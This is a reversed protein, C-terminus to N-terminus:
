EPKKNWAKDLLEKVKLPQIDPFTGNLFKAPKPDFVGDEFWLGFAVGMGQMAPKPFFQYLPVQGPLETIQGMKLKEKTDYTTDFKTGKAEEALHLFENWTVRDGFVFTEPEWEPLDLSAAVFRGVDNTHTFLAHTNGSGPIAAADNPIDLWYVLPTRALYSKVGPFGWYDMFYGNYFVTYELSKTKRLEKQANIKHIVSPIMGIHEDKIPVGWDSSIFRKTTKSLDAAQILEIEKPESGDPSHMAIGSVVTDINNDELVKVVAGVDSYDVPVIAAGIEAELGFNPKRSLIKVEHRGTSLIAEVIARGVSGTGGAVAVIAM